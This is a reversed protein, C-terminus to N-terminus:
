ILCAELPPPWQESFCTAVGGAGVAAGLVAGILVVPGALAPTAILLAALSAVIGSIIRIKRM